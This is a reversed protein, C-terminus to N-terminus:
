KRAGELNNYHTEMAISYIDGRSIGIDRLEADSLASLDQITQRIEKNKRYNSIFRNLPITFWSFDLRRSAALMLQAM